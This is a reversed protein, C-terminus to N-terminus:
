SFCIELATGEDDLIQTVLLDHQGIAPHAVALVESRMSLGPPANFVLAFQERFRSGVKRGHRVKNLTVQHQGVTFTEGVLPEFHEAVAKALDRTMNALGKESHAVIASPVAARGLAKDCFSKTVATSTVLTATLAFIRIADRRSVTARLNSETM